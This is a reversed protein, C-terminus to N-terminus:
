REDPADNRSGDLVTEHIDRWDILKFDQFAGGPRIGDQVVLLGNPFQDGLPMGSAALGDTEETGDFQGPAVRFRGVFKRDPLTYLAYSNDGQSSAVLYAQEGRRYISLGEVDAVLGSASGIVDVAEPTAFQDGAFTAAWIGTEEEGIFVQNTPEDFVCGELQTEFKLRFTQQVTTPSGLEYFIADGTKHTVTVMLRGALTGMCIGYPEDLLSAFSGLESVTGDAAIEFVAVSNNSRNSAVALDGQWAGISIGQRLDVNNLRGTPLFQKIAGSLDYAYLGAQKDTGLILSKNSDTRNIWIAPDDAADDSSKVPVTEAVATVNPLPELVPANDCATVLLLAAFSPFIKMVYGGFPFAPCTCM